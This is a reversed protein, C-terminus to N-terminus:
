YELTEYEEGDEAAISLEEELEEYTEGETIDPIAYNRVDIKGTVVEAILAAKYEEVLAIERNILTKLENEKRVFEILEKQLSIEPVPIKEKILFRPNLPRNRGAAGRSHYDLLLHGESITFLSFLYEPVINSLDCDLVPYRHSAVCGDDNIGVLAVAGEWAFQGSLIVDGKKLYYFSSDGLEKGLTPPKHFLGRGKNFVGIPIYIDNDLREIPREILKAVSNLRLYKVGKSNIINRTLSKRRETYLALIQRKQQVFRNIKAVKYNLFQAIAIQEQKPPVPFLFNKFNDSPMRWRGLQAAGQGEAFFIKQKYCMQLLRLMYNKDSQNDIQSFVRYDPSIVGDYKSIDVYGTLLDMHNMGFEGTYIRQYKSYDMALQGKGSTIDKVKIGHQTISLVNYGLEGAIRKQIRFIYKLRKTEWHKPIRGVWSISSDRYYSYKIRM